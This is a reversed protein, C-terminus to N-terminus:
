MIDSWCMNAQEVIAQRLQHGSLEMKKGLCTYLCNGDGIINEIRLGRLKCWEAKADMRTIKVFM